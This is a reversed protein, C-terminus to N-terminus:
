IFKLYIISLSRSLHPDEPRLRRERLLHGLAVEVRPGAAGAAQRLLRGHEGRAEGATVPRDEM